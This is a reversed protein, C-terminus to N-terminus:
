TNPEGHEAEKQPTVNADVATKLTLASARLKEILVLVARPDDSSALNTVQKLLEVQVALLADIKRELRALTRDTSNM